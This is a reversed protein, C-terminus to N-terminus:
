GDNLEPCLMLKALIEKADASTIPYVKGGTQIYKTCLNKWQQEHREYYNRKYGTQQLLSQVEDLDWYTIIINKDRLLFNVNVTKNNIKLIGTIEFDNINRSKLYRYIIEKGDNKKAMNIQKRSDRAKKIRERRAMLKEEYSNKTQDSSESHKCSVTCPWNHVSHVVMVPACCTRYCARYGADAVLGPHKYSFAYPSYGANEHILGSPNKHSFAYPSYHFDRDVLGSPNKHSFAYPSYRLDGSVLGSRKHSFAYPSWHTRYRFSGYGYDYIYAKTVGPAITLIVIAFLSIRKM